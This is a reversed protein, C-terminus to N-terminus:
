LEFQMVYVVGGRSNRAAELLEQFSTDFVISVTKITRKLEQLGENAGSTLKLVSRHMMEIVFTEEKM